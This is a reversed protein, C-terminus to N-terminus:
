GVKCAKIEEIMKLVTDKHVDEFVETFEAFTKSDRNRVKDIDAIKIFNIGKKIWRNWDMDHETNFNVCGAQLSIVPDALFTERPFVYFNFPYAIFQDQEKPDKIVFTIGIQIINFKSAVAAM